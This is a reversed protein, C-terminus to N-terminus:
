MNEDELEEMWREVRRYARALTNRESMDEWCEDPKPYKQPTGAESVMQKLKVWKEPNM